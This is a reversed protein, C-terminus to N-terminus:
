IGQQMNWFTYLGTGNITSLDTIPISLDEDSVLDYWETGTFYYIQYVGDVSYATQAATLYNNLTFSDNDLEFVYQGVILVNPTTISVVSKTVVADVLDAQAATIANTATTVDAQTNATTVVNATVVLQYTTWSEATYDAEVVAALATTYATIDALVVADLTGNTKAANFTNTATGLAMVADDVETQTAAVNDAVLQAAAIADTYADMDAQLVWKDAVLVDTGDLSVTAVSPDATTIANTLATKVVVTIEGTALTYNVPTVYKAADAGGLTYVVTITKGTGVTASDYTAVASVTVADTGVVGALAGATAAAATNGDYVKTLTLTPDAITLQVPATVVVEVTATFSGTNVFGAPITGLTATFTYSGAVAPNYTDTDVWATVPVTVASTNATASTPLVAKVAAADAYTASGATGADVNAIADFATIEVDPAVAQVTISKSGYAVVRGTADEIVAYAIITDGAEVATIVGTTENVIAKNPHTSIWAITEGDGAVTFDTPTVDAEGVQVVSIIPDTVIAEAYVTIAKSNVNGSTSTTYAITTTGITLATVVGTSGEVTAVAPNSSTWTGAGAEITIATATTTEGLQLVGDLGTVEAGPVVVVANVTIAQSTTQSSATIIVATDAVVLADGNAKVTTISNTEFDVFTVDQTSLDSNTLTVVLGALDLLDGETYVVKTPATKVSVSSVTVPPVTFNFTTAAGVENTTTAAVRVQLAVTGTLDPLNPTGENYVTWTTGDTSFEMAATIGSVTNAVDDITVGTLAPGDVKAVSIDYTVTKGGVTVTLTQTAVVASSDFGSVDGAVVTEPKTTLNSYTGTVVMGTIDLAEGVKYATKTAPTTIAISSLTVPNAIVNVTGTVVNYTTTDTPTFTWGFDGTAPVVTTDDTWALTGAVSTADTASVKFTGTLTSAVLTQGVNVATAAVATDVVPDVPAVLAAIAKNVVVTDIASDASNTLTITGTVTGATGIIADTKAFAVTFAPTINANTIVASVAALVDAETTANTAVLATLAGEAATKVEALTQAPARNITVAYYMITTTDEATVKIYAATSGGETLALTAVGTIETAFTADSYFKFTALAAPAIDALALTATANVVPVEWAIANVTDAGSQTGPTVDTQGAVSILGADTSVAAFVTMPMVLTFMMTLVILMSLFKSNKRKELM